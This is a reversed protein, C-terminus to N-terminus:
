KAESPFRFHAPSCLLTHLLESQNKANVKPFMLKLHERLTNTTINLERAIKDTGMSDMMLMSISTQVPTFDFMDRLLSACRRVKLDPDSVFVAIKSTAAKDSIKSTRSPLRTLVVSLPRRNSRAISFGVPASNEPNGLKILADSLARKHSASRASLFGNDVRLDSNEKLVDTAHGNSFLIKGRPNVVIVGCPVLNLISAYPM